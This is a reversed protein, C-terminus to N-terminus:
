DRYAEKLSHYNGVIAAQLYLQDYLAAVDLTSDRSQNPVSHDGTGFPVRYAKREDFGCLLPLSSRIVLRRELLHPWYM